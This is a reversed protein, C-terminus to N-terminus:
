SLALLELDSHGPLVYWDDWQSLDRLIRRYGHAKLLEYIQQRASTGNHEISIVKFRFKSFDFARLIDLESGETDISLYDVVPPAGNAVLLDLLSVTEVTYIKGDARADAHMDHSSFPELTSLEAATTENFKLLEGSNRWVARYDVQCDRNKALTPHWVRAPEAVIGTWGFQKELLDTNSLIIGDAAGFEVFYGHASGGAGSLALAVVDQGLQAQSGPFRGNQQGVM